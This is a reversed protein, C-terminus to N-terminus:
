RHRERIHLVHLVEALHVNAAWRLLESDDIVCAGRVEPHRALAARIALVARGSVVRRLRLGVRLIALGEGHLIAGPAALAIQALVLDLYPAQGNVGESEPLHRM